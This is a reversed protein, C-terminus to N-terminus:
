SGGGRGVLSSPADAKLMWDKQALGGRSRSHWRSPHREREKMRGTSGEECKLIYKKGEVQFTRSERAM